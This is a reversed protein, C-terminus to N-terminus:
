TDRAVVEAERGRWYGAGYNFCLEEGEGVDTALFFECELAARDLRRVVNPTPSHNLLCPSFTGEGCAARVAAGDLFADDGLRLVYEGHGSPFRAEFGAKDLLEGDYLGLSTGKPLPASAFAGLGGLPSPAIAVAAALGQPPPATAATLHDGWQLSVKGDALTEVRVNAAAAAAAAAAALAAM